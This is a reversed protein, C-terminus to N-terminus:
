RRPSFSTRDVSSDMSRADSSTTRSSVRARGWTSGPATAYSSWVSSSRAVSCSQSTRCKVYASPSRGYAYSAGPGSTYPTPTQSPTALAYLYRQSRQPRAQQTTVPSACSGPHGARPGSGWAQFRTLTGERSTHRRRSSGGGHRSASHALTSTVKSAESECAM